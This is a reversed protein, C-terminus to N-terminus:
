PGHQCRGRLVQSCGWLGWPPRSAQVTGSALRFERASTPGWEAALLGMRRGGSKGLSDKTSGAQGRIRAGVWEHGGPARCGVQGPDGKQAHGGVQSQGKIPLPTRAPDKEEPCCPLPYWPPPLSCSPVPPWLCKGQVMTADLSGTQWSQWTPGNDMHNATGM